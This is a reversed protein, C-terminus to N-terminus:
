VNERDECCVRIEIHDVLKNTRLYNKCIKKDVFVKNVLSELTITPDVDLAITVEMSHDGRFDTTKLLVSIKM